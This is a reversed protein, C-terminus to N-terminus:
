LGPKLREPGASKEEDMDRNKMWWAIGADVVCARGQPGAKVVTFGGDPSAFVELLTGDVSIGLAVSEENYSDLLAQALRDRPM